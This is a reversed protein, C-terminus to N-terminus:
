FICTRWCLTKAGSSEDICTDCSLLVVPDILLVHGHWWRHRLMCILLNRLIPRVLSARQSMLLHRQLIQQHCGTRWQWQVRRWLKQAILFYWNTFDPNKKKVNHKYKYTKVYMIETFVSSESIGRNLLVHFIEHVTVKEQINNSYLCLVSIRTWSTHSWYM